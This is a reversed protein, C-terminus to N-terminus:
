VVMLGWAVGVAFGTSCFNVLDNGLWGRREVTAGLVSDFVLGAVGGVVAVWTERVGLRLAWMGVGAVIVAGVIGAGTGPLSVAGDTGVAVRRLTTVMWPTGGFAQGIESSVTDATAECFAALLLVEWRFGSFSLGVVLGAMGLNAVVQAANRGRRSEALGAQEKRGRGMRSAIFTLVFLAILPALGSHLMDGGSNFTVTLCVLGGMM